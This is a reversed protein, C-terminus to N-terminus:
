NPNGVCIYAISDTGTGSFMVNTTASKPKIGNSASTTDNAVCVPANRYPTPFTVTITGNSLKATGAFQNATMQGLHAPAETQGPLGCIAGVLCSSGYPQLNLALETAENDSITGAAIHLFMPGYIDEPFGPQVNAIFQVTQPIGPAAAVKLAKWYWEWEAPVGGSADGLIYSPVFGSFTGGNGSIDVFKCTGSGCFPTSWGLVQNSSFGAANRARVWGGIIVIDGVAFTQNAQYFICNANRSSSACTAAGTTGDPATIGTTISGGGATTWSSPSTNALNTFRVGVPAFGRRAADTQGLVRGGLFGNQHQRDGSVVTATISGPANGSVIAPGTVASGRLGTGGGGNPSSVLVADSPGNGDVEVAANIPYSDATWVNTLNFFLLPSTVTLWVCGHGDTQGECIVNAVVAGASGQGVPNDEFAGVNLHSNILYVEGSNNNVTSGPDVVFAQRAETGGTANPNGDFTSEFFYNEFSNPGIRLGPGNTSISASETFTCNRFTINTVGANNEFVGNSDMALVSGSGNKTHVGEFYMAASNGSIWIAPQTNSEGTVNCSPLASNTNWSGVASCIVSVAREKVWGPPPSGFNPDHGGIIRLGQGSVPGGWAVNDSIYITGGCAPGFNCGAIPLANWAAYITAKASGWSLGDNSNNGTRSVFQIPEGKAPKLAHDSQGWAASAVALYVVVLFGVSARQNCRCVNICVFSNEEINGRLRM